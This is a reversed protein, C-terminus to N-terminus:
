EMDKGRLTGCCHSSGADGLANAQGEQTHVLETGIPCHLHTGIAQWAAQVVWVASETSFHM